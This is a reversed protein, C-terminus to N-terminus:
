SAVVAKISCHYSAPPGHSARGQWDSTQNPKRSGNKGVSGGATGVGRAPEDRLLIRECIGMFHGSKQSNTVPPFATAFGANQHPKSSFVQGTMQETNYFNATSEM